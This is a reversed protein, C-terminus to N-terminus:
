YLIIGIVIGEPGEGRGGEGGGGRREAKNTGKTNTRLVKNILIGDYVSTVPHQLIGTDHPDGVTLHENLQRQLKGPIHHQLPLVPAPM